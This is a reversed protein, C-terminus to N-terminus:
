KTEQKARVREAALLSRRDRMKAIIKRLATYPEYDDDLMWDDYTAIAEDIIDLAIGRQQHYDISSEVESAM